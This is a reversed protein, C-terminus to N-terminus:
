TKEPKIRELQTELWRIGKNRLGELGERGLERRFSDLRSNKSEPDDERDRRCVICPKEFITSLVFCHFSDTCVAAAGHLAGLFEEPGMGDLKKYEASFSEATVPVVLVELQLETQLQRVTEWYATNEGIFYCLLYAGRAVPPATMVTEWENRTLLCVPDPMVEARKGTMKELLVAGEEERVSIADFGILWKRMKKQKAESPLRSVGLSAAYAIKRTEAPAFPLFYAQNLWVPNWIQDSGCILMDYKGCQKKLESRNRCVPSLRLSRRYFDPIARSKKRAGAMSSKVKRKRLGDLILAPSNGSSIYNRIKEAGDPRYDMHEAEAGLACITRQLAYAQLSSGFNDNHLFTIIGVKAMAIGKKTRKM